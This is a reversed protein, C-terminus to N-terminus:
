GRQGRLQAQPGYAQYGLKCVELRIDIAPCQTMRSCNGTVITIKCKYLTLPSSIDNYSHMIFLGLVFGPIIVLHSVICINYNPFVNLFKFFSEIAFTNALFQPMCTTKGSKLSKLYSSNGKVIFKGFLSSKLYYITQREYPSYVHVFNFKGANAYIFNPSEYSFTNSTIAQSQTCNIRERM